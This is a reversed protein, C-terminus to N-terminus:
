APILGGDRAVLPDPQETTGTKQMRIEDLMADFRKAGAGTDGDGAASVVDAPIIFEGPSVAVPQQGGITGPIMDDMGRGEGQILGETQANPQVGQLVQERLMQFAETGYEDLFRDIVVSAEEESLQGMVAMMTQEILPDASPVTGGEQMGMYANTYDFSLNQMNPAFRMFDEEKNGTLGLDAFEKKAAQYKKSGVSRGRRPTTALAVLADYDKESMFPAIGQGMVVDSFDFDPTTTTDTTTGTDTDPKPDDIEPIRERFYEIEPGFGPRYEIEQLEAATKAVPGRLQAQRSAASGYGFRAGGGMGQNFGGMSGGENMRIPARGLNQLDSLQRQYEQPNLSVIGGARAYNTPDYAAYQRGMGSTDIGFDTGALDLSTGLLDYARDEEAQRDAETQRAMQEYGEEMEIQGQLGSGVAVPLIAGPRMLGKGTAALADGSSFPQAVREAFTTANAASPDLNLGAFNEGTGQILGTRQTFLDRSLEDVAGTAADATSQLASSAAGEKATELALAKTADTAATTADGLAAVTETAGTAADSGAGLASGLGYGMLGSAIGKKLDGTMATTALGSGIAGALASNAGIAGLATGLTGAGVAGAAATFAGPALASALMPILFAFAEPQGTVPNTTLGGPVMSAIGQVEAPNMHVLMSDGYRGYQAMQEAQPQLPAQQMQGRVYEM